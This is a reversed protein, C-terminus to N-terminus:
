ATRRLRLAVRKIGLACRCSVHAPPGDVPGNDTHFLGDIPATEGELPACVPCLRDDPTVLWVKRMDSGILGANRAEKWAAIQGATSASAIETRAIMDARQRLLKEAYQRVAFQIRDAGLGKATLAAQRTLVAKTQRETLGILARIRKATDRTSVQDRFSQAIVARIAKRTEDTVGTVFRAATQEAAKLAAPNSIEFAKGVAPVQAAASNAGAKVADTLVQAADQLDRSLSATLSRLSFADGEIARLIQAETLRRRLRLFARAVERRLAPEIRDLRRLLREAAASLRDAM